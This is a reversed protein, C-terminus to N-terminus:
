YEDGLVEKIYLDDFMDLLPKIDLYQNLVMLEFEDKFTEDKFYLIIGDKVIQFLFRPIADNLIKLDINIQYDTKKEIESILRSFYFSKEKFERDLVVGIDIDSFQTQLGKAYSGYLYALQIENHDKFVDQAIQKLDSLQLVKYKPRKMYPLFLM